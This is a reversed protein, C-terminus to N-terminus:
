SKGHHNALNRAEIINDEISCYTWSGYRGISWVDRAELWKKKEKVDRIAAANIHVYAPDMLISEYDTLCQKNTIIGAKELDRLVLGLWENPEVKCDKPFGLEVYLSMRDQQLINDYFGVRYFCYTKEPFYLWHHQTDGGKSDFGLNFVLVQNWSYISEDYEVGTTNLLHVFPMTSVLRDYPICEGTDLIVRHEDLRIEKVSVNLRIKDPPIPRNISEIYYSAGRRPYVFSENYSATDHAKFNRIIEERDAYPFFRGMATRDLANLDCAYLKENYPRLFKETIARGFKGYLMELFTHQTGEHITFLDYLCDILEEKPLQHINKQFPYDVLQDKYFIKTRKVVEVIESSDLHAFVFNKIEPNRFHFFHGSYDWTYGNRRTTKCYGGIRDEKELILFDTKSTFRAYSLGTVGAGIIVDM